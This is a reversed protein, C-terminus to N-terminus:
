LNQKNYVCHAATLVHRNTILSGGCLFVPSGPTKTSRYGLAVVWPWAGLTANQGGVVRVNSNSYETHGCEGPQPLITNEDEYEEYEDEDVDEVSPETVQPVRPSPRPSPPPPTTKPKPM